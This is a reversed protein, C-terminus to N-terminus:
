EMFTTKNGTAYWLTTTASPVVSTSASFRQASTPPSGTWTRSGKGSICRPRKRPRTPDPRAADARPLDSGLAPERRGGALLYERLSGKSGAMLMTDLETAQHRVFAPSAM